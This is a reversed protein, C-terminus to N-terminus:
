ETVGPGSVLLVRLGAVRCPGVWRAWFLGKVCLPM